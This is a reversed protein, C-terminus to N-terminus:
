IVKEMISSLKFSFNISIFCITLYAKAGHYKGPLNDPKIDYPNLPLVNDPLPSGAMMKELSMFLEKDTCYLSIDASPSAKSLSM